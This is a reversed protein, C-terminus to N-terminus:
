HQTPYYMPIDEPLIYKKGTLSENIYSMLKKDPTFFGKKAYFIHPPKVTDYLDSSLLHINKNCGLKKSVKLAFNILYSGVGKEREKAQIDAIYLSKKPMLEKPYYQRLVNARNEVTCIMTGQLLGTKTNCVNYNKYHRDYTKYSGEYLLKDPIKIPKIPPFKLM